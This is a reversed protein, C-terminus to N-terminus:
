RNSRRQKWAAGQLVKRDSDDLHSDGVKIGVPHLDLLAALFVCAAFYSGAFSPHSQDRDYLLPWQHKAIFTHWALGVPVVIAGVEKGLSTYASTIAQQSSSPVILM